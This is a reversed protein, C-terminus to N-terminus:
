DTAEGAAAEFDALRGNIIPVWYATSARLMDGIAVSSITAGTIGDIQWPDEKAGGKVAEIPHVLGDGGPNLKAELAEFNALFEPDVAIKDGLGPTEKSELVQMGVVAEQAHSYGYLVAIIDQYGMGSAEVAFGVLSGSDDYGAYVLSDGTAGDDVPEFGQDQTYRFTKSSAAAPLVDFIAAVLAEQKNKEIIPFTFAYVSVILLGCLLGVGVMSRYMKWASPAEPAPFAVPASM